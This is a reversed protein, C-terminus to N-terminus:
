LPSKGTKAWRWVAVVGLVFWLLTTAPEVAAAAAAFGAPPAAGGAPPLGQLMPPADPNIRGNAYVGVRVAGMPFWGPPNKTIPDLTVWGSAPSAYRLLVHSYPGADPSVVIAQADIGISRLLAGLLVVQDDCDTAARGSAAIERLMFAPDKVLEKGLPDHVYHTHARVWGLLARAQGDEDRAAVSKAVMQAIGIIQPDGSGRDMFRDMRDLVASTGADGNPVYEASARYPYAPPM